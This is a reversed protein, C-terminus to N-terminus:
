NSGHQSPSPPFKDCGITEFLKMEAELARKAQQEVRGLVERVKDSPVDGGFYLELYGLASCLASHIDCVFGKTIVYRSLRRQLM